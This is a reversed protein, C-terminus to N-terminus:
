HLPELFAPRFVASEYVSLLCALLIIDFSILLNRTVSTPMWLFNFFFLLWVVVSEFLSFGLIEAEAPIVHCAAHLRGMAVCPIGPCLGAQANLTLHNFLHALEFFCHSVAECDLAIVRDVYLQVGDDKLAFLLWMWCVFLGFSIRSAISELRFSKRFNGLVSSFDSAEINLLMLVASSVFAPM